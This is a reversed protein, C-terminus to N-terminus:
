NGGTQGISEKRIGKGREKEIVSIEEEYCKGRNKRERMRGTMEVM